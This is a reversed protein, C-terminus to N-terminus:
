LNYTEKVKAIFEDLMQKFQVSLNEEGQEEAYKNIFNALLESDKYEELQEDSMSDACFAALAILMVVDRNFEM